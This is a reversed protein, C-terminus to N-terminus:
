TAFSLDITVVPSRNPRCDVELVFLLAEFDEFFLVDIEFPTKDKALMRSSDDSRAPGLM